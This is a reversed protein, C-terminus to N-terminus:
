RLALPKAADPMAACYDEGLLHAVTAAAQSQTVNAMNKREGQKPLDPSYVAIWINEAGAVSAGHNKWATPADGRGHDTTIVIATKDKYQPIQQLTQMLTALWSDFRNIAEIYNDYRGAHAWEDTDDLSIYLVRPKNQELYYLAQFWTFSDFRSDEWQRYSEEQVENLAMQRESLKGGGAGVPAAMKEWGANVFLKSREVNLIDPLVDWSGVAAVKGRYKPKANLWELVNVNPNPKKANSDIRDDSAGTLLENYGPYSFNRKNTVLAASGDNANGFVQGNAVLFSWFFPLLKERRGIPTPAVLKRKLENIRGATGNAPILLSEDVGTFVEQWRVGDLTILILNEAKRPLAGGPAAIVFGILLVFLSSATLGIVKTRIPNAEREKFM